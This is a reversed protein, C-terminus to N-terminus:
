EIDQHSFIASLLRLRQAIRPLALSLELQGNTLHPDALEQRLFNSVSFVDLEDFGGPTCSVGNPKVLTPLKAVPVTFLVESKKEDNRSVAAWLCLLPRVTPRSNQSNMLGPLKMKLLVKRTGPHLLECLDSNYYRKWTEMKMKRSCDTEVDEINFIHTGGDLSHISWSKIETQYLIQTEGREILLWCDLQHGAKGGTTCPLRKGGLVHQSLIKSSWGHSRFYRVMCAIAIEEGIISKISSADPRAQTDVDFFEILARINVKLENRPDDVVARLDVPLNQPM